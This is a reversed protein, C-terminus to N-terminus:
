HPKNALKALKIPMLGIMENTLDEQEKLKPDLEKTKSYEKFFASLLEYNAQGKKLNDALVSKEKSYLKGWITGISLRLNIVTQIYENKEERSVLLKIIREAVAISKEGYSNM